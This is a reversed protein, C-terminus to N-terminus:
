EPHQKPGDGKSVDAFTIAFSYCDVALLLLLRWVLLSFPSTQSLSVMRELSQALLPDSEELKESTTRADARIIDGRM